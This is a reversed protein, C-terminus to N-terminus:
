CNIYYYFSLLKSVLPINNFSKFHNSNVNVNSFSLSLFLYVNIKVYYNIISIVFDSM